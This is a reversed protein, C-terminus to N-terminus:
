LLIFRTRKHMPKMNSEDPKRNKNCLKKLNVTKSIKYPRLTAKEDWKYDTKFQRRYLFFSTLIESLSKPYKSVARCFVEQCSLSKNQSNEVASIGALQLFSSELNTMRLGNNIKQGFTVGMKGTSDMSVMEGSFRMISTAATQM